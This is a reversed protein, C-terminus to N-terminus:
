VLRTQETGVADTRDRGHIHDPTQARLRKDGPHNLPAERCGVKWSLWPVVAPGDRATVPGAARSGTPLRVRALPPREGDGDAVPTAPGGSRGGMQDDPEWVVAPVLRDTSHPCRLFFNRPFNARLESM